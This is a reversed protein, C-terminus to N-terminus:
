ISRRISGPTVSLHRRFLSTMHNQSAFGCEYAIQSIPATTHSLRDRAREIRRRQVFAWVAEGTTAKFVRAFQGASLAAVSALKAVTLTEGIHADLYDIARSIRRDEVHDAGFPSLSVSNVMVALFQLTLGDLYLSAASGGDTSAQWMRDMVASAALNDTLKSAFCDLSSVGGNVKVMLDAVKQQNLAISTITHPVEVRTRAETNAPYYGFANVRGRSIHAGDGLDFLVGGLDDDARTFVLDPVAADILDFPKQDVRVMALGFSGGRAISKRFREM